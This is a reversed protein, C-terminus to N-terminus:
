IRFVEHLLPHDTWRAHDYGGRLWQVTPTFFVQQVDGDDRREYGPAACTQARTSRLNVDGAVIVEPLVWPQALVSLLEHCQRLAVDPETSLHTTGATLRGPVVTTCTWARIEGSDDQSAYWGHHTQRGAYHHLVAVGFPAGGICRYWDGTDRNGAPTFDVAVHQSGYLDAMARALKGWGDPAYLDDRCIEQLTVLEPRYRHIEGVAEDISRGFAYCKAQPAGSNCLNMQLLVFTTGTPAVPDSTTLGAVSVAVAIACTLLRALV